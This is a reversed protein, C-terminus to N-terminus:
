IDSIGSSVIEKQPIDEVPVIQTRSVIFMMLLEGISRKKATLFQSRIKPHVEM